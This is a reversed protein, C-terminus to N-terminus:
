EDLIGFLRGSLISSHQTVRRFQRPDLSARAGCNKDSRHKYGYDAAASLLPLQGSLLHFPLVQVLDAASMTMVLIIEGQLLHRGIQMAHESALDKRAAYRCIVRLDSAHNESSPAHHRGEGSPKIFRLHRRQEGVQM